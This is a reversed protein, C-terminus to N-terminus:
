TAPRLVVTVDAHEARGGIVGVAVREVELAALERALVEGAPDNSVLVVAGRGHEGVIEAALLEVRRVVDDGVRVAAVPEGIRGIATLKILALGINGATRGVRAALEIWPDALRGA